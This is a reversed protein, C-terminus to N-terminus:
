PSRRTQQTRRLAAGAVLVLPLQGAAYIVHMAYHGITQEPVFPLVPLPLVSVIGGVLLNLLAWSLALMWVAPSSPWRWCALFLAVAVVLPGTNELDLPTVPLEWVNHLLMSGWSMAFVLALWWIRRM